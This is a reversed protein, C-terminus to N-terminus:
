DDVSRAHRTIPAAMAALAFFRQDESTLQYGHYLRELLDLLDSAVGHEVGADQMRRLTKAEKDQILLDSRPVPVASLSQRIGNQIEPFIRASTATNPMNPVALEIVTRLCHRFADVDTGLDVAHIEAVYRVAHEIVADSERSHRVFSQHGKSIELYKSALTDVVDSSAVKNRWLAERAMQTCAVMLDVDVDEENTM